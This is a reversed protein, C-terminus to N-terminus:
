SIDQMADPELYMDSCHTCSSRIRHQRRSRQVLASQHVHCLEVGVRQTLRLRPRLYVIKKRAKKAFTEPKAKTKKNSVTNPARHEENPLQLCEPVSGYMSMSIRLGGVSSQCPNSSRDHGGRRM